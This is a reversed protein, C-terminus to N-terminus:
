VGFQTVNYGDESNIIGDNNKDDATSFLGLSRYGFPTGLQRGVLTRNPNEAQADSQFVEIQSNKSYSYNASVILSLGSAWTKRTGVTLEFGKNKMSGKNEQSLDLGYEVPLTVQPALLMGTRDEQFY